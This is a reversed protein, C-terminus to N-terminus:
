LLGRSDLQTATGATFQQGERALDNTKLPQLDRNALRDRSWILLHMWSPHTCLSHFIPPCTWIKGTKRGTLKEKRQRWDSPHGSLFVRDTRNGSNIRGDEKTNSDRNEHCSWFKFGVNKSRRLYKSFQKLKKHSHTIENLLNLFTMNIKNSGKPIVTWYALSDLNLM